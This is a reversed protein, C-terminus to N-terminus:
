STAGAILFGAHDKQLELMPEGFRVLQKASEYSQKQHPLLRYWIIRQQETVYQCDLQAELSVTHGPLPTGVIDLQLVFLSSTIFNQPNTTKKQPCSSFIEAFELPVMVMAHVM